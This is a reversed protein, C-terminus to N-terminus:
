APLSHGPLFRAVSDFGHATALVPIRKSLAGAAIVEGVFLCFKSMVLLMSADYIPKLAPHSKWIRKKHYWAFAKQGLEMGDLQIADTRESQWDCLWETQDFDRTYTSYAFLDFYWRDYNIDFGNMEVYLAEVKFDRECMEIFSSLQGLIDARPNMFQADILSSFHHADHSALFKELTSIAGHVDNSRIYDDTIQWLNM